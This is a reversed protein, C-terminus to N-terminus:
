LCMRCINKMMLNMMKRSPMRESFFASFRSLLSFTSFDYNPSFNETKRFRLRSSVTTSSASIVLFMMLCLTAESEVKIPNFNPMGLNLLSKRSIMCSEGKLLSM